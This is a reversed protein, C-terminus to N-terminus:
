TGMTVRTRPCCPGAVCAMGTVRLTNRLTTLSRAATMAASAGRSTACVSDSIPACIRLTRPIGSQFPSSMRPTSCISLRSLVPTKM